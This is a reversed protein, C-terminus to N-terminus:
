GCRPSIASAAQVAPYLLAIKDKKFGPVASM